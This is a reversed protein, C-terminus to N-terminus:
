QKAAAVLDSLFDTLLEAVAFPQEVHPWHGVEPIVTTLAGPFRQSVMADIVRPVIFADEAGGAILVPGEFASKESGSWDGASWACFLAGVTEPQVKMGVKVL